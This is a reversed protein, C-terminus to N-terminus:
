GKRKLFIANKRPGSNYKIVWKLLRNKIEEPTPMATMSGDFKWIKDM